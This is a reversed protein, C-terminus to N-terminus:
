RACTAAVPATDHFVRQDEHEQRQGQQGAHGLGLAYERFLGRGPLGELLPDLERSAIDALAVPLIRLAIELRRHGDIVRVRLDVLGEGQYVLAGAFELEGLLAETTGDAQIALKGPRAVVVRREQKGPLAKGLGLLLEHRHDAVRQVAGPWLREHVEAQAAQAQRRL